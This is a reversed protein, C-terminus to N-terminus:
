QQGQLICPTKGASLMDLMHMWQQNSENITEITQFPLALRVPQVRKGHQDYKGDWILEVPM